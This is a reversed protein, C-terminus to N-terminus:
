PAMIHCLGPSVRVAGVVDCSRANAESCPLIMLAIVPHKRVVAVLAKSCSVVNSDGFHRSVLLIRWVAVRIIVVARM